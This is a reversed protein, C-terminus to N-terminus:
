RPRFVGRPVPPTFGGAPRHASPGDPGRLAGPRYAKLVRMARLTVLRSPKGAPEIVFHVEGPHAANAAWCGDPRRRKEVVDFAEAMRPDFPAGVAAFHDLGRLINYRWRALAPFRLFEQRIVEGTHDSRFFRHLLVFARAAESMADIEGARHRYGAVRYAAFGELVSLTTHLSSHRAGSRARQCNFGGDPMADAILFDVVPALRAQDAGFWSAYALLMGNICTDTYVTRGGPRGANVEDLVADVSARIEPTPPCALTCLDLLTYHTSTWKPEYFGRGWHGDAGRAALLRAAWGESPIRAKLAPRDDDLLDRAAQYAVAVDGQMLWDLQRPKM